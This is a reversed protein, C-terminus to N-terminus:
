SEKKNYLDDIFGEKILEIMAKAPIPSFHTGSYMELEKMIFEKDKRKSYPREGAMASVADAICLIQSGLPIEDGSLNSPYGNGNWWEHHHKVLLAIGKLEDSSELINSGFVAHNKVTEYEELTLKEPKNIVETPIGVKGIDHVIGAWYVNYVQNDDLNLKQAMGKAFTAVEESHGGTYQDYLELTKILSVVLDNKIFQHKNNLYNIEYFSNMLRQFSQFGKLDDESFTKKSNHTVDFSLGGSFVEDIYIGFRISERITPVEESYTKYDARLRQKLHTEANKIHEPEKLAWTFGNSFDVSNLTDIDYNKADVFVPKSDIKIYCSAMDYNDFLNLAINFINKLYQVNTEENTLEFDRINLLQNTSNILLELKNNTEQLDENKASVNYLTMRTIIAIYSTSIIFVNVDFLRHPLEYAYGDLYVFKYVLLYIMLIILLSRYSFVLAPIFLLTVFIFSQNGSSISFTDSLFLIALSLFLILYGTAFLTIKANTKKDYYFSLLVLNGFVMLGTSISILWNAFEDFLIPIDFFIQVSITRLGATILSISLIAIYFFAISSNDIRGLSSTKDMISTFVLLAIYVIAASILSFLISEIITLDLYLIIGVLHGLFSGILIYPLQKYRYMTFLGLSLGIGPWILIPNIDNYHFLYSIVTAIFVMLGIVIRKQIENLSDIM